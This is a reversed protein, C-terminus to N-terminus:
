NEIKLPRDHSDPRIADNKSFLPLVISTQDACKRLAAPDESSLALQLLHNANTTHSESMELIGDMRFDLVLWTQRGIKKPTFSFTCVNAM